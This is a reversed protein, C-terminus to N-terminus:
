DELVDDLWQQLSETELSEDTKSGTFNKKADCKDKYPKSSQDSLSEHSRMAMKINEESDKASSKILSMRDLQEELESFREIDSNSHSKLNVFAGKDGKGVCSTLVHFPTENAFISKVSPRDIASHSNVKNSLTHHYIVAHEKATRRMCELEADTFYNEPISCREAFPISAISLGLLNLDLNFLGSCDIPSNEIDSEGLIDSKFRFQNVKSIPANALVSFDSGSASLSNIPFNVDEKYRDSNSKLQPSKSRVTAKPIIKSKSKYKSKNKLHRM